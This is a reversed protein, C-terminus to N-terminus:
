SYADNLEKTTVFSVFCLFSKVAYVRESQPQVQVSRLQYHIKQKVAEGTSQILPPEKCSFNNQPQNNASSTTATSKNPPRNPAYTVM